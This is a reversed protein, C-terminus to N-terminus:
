RGNPYRGPPHPLAFWVETKVISAVENESMPFNGAGNLDHATAMLVNWPQHTGIMPKLTRRIRHAVVDRRVTIARVQEVLIHWWIAVVAELDDSATTARAVTAVIAAYAHAEALLGCSVPRALSQTLAKIADPRSM